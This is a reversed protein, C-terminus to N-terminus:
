AQQHRHLFDPRLTLIASFGLAKFQADLNKLLQQFYFINKLIPGQIEASTFEFNEVYVNPDPTVRRRGDRHSRRLLSAEENELPSENVDRRVRTVDDANKIVDADDEGAEVDFVDNFSNDNFTDDNFADYNFADYNFADDNFTDDNFADDYADNSREFSHITITFCIVFCFAIKYFSNEAM